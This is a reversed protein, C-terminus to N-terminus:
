SRQFDLYVVLWSTKVSNPLIKGHSTKQKQLLIYHFFSSSIQIDQDFIKEGNLINQNTVEAFYKKTNFM